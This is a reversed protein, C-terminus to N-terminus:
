ELRPLRASQVGLTLTEMLAEYRWLQSVLQYLYHFPLASEIQAGDRHNFNPRPLYLTGAFQSEMASPLYRDPRHPPDIVRNTDQNESKHSIRM